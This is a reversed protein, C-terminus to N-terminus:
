GGNLALLLLDRLLQAFQLALQVAQLGGRFRQPIRRAAFERSDFFTDHGRGAARFNALGCFLPPGLDFRLGLLCGALNKHCTRPWVAPQLFHLSSRVSHFVTWHFRLLRPFLFSTTFSRNRVGGIMTYYAGLSPEATSKSWPLSQFSKSLAFWEAVTCWFLVPKLDALSILLRLVKTADGSFNYSIRLVRNFEKIGIHGEIFEGEDALWNSFESQEMVKLVGSTLVKKLDAEVSM